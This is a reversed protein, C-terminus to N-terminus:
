IVRCDTLSGVMMKCNSWWEFERKGVRLRTVRGQASLQMGALTAAREVREAQRRQAASVISVSIGWRELRRKGPSTPRLYPTPGVISCRFAENQHSLYFEHICHICHICFIARVCVCLIYYTHICIYIYYIIIYWTINHWTIYYFIINYKIINYETHDSLMGGNHVSTIGVTRRGVKHQFSRGPWVTLM